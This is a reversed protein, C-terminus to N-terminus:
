KNRCNSDFFENIADSAKRDTSVDYGRAGLDLHDEDVILEHNGNTEWHLFEHLLTVDGRSTPGIIIKNWRHADWTYPDISSLVTVGRPRQNYVSAGLKSKAYDWYEAVTRGNPNFNGSSDTIAVTENHNHFTV